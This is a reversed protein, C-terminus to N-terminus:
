AGPAFGIPKEIDGYRHRDEERVREQYGELRANEREQVSLHMRLEKMELSQRSFQSESTLSRNINVKAQEMCTDRHKVLEECRATLNRVQLELNGITVSPAEGRPRRPPTMKPKRKTM